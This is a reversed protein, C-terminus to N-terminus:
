RWFYEPHKMIGVEKGLDPVLFSRSCYMQGNIRQICIHLVPPQHQTVTAFECRFKRYKLIGPSACGLKNLCNAIEEM